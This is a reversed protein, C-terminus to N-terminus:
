RYKWRSKVTEAVKDLTPILNAENIGERDLLQLLKDAEEIQLKICRLIVGDPNYSPALLWSQIALELAPKDGRYDAMFTFLGQQARLYDHNHNSVNRVLISYKEDEPLEQFHNFQIRETNLAWVCVEQPMTNDRFDHGVAFYAAFLPNFTWDILNTPIGHHQALPSIDDYSHGMDHWNVGSYLPSGYKNLSAGQIDTGLHEALVAFQYVAEVEAMRHLKIEQEASDSYHNAIDPHAKMIQQKLKELQSNPRWSSPILPWEADWHGRFVWPTETEYEHWWYPHSRRILMLFSEATLPAGDDDETVYEILEM